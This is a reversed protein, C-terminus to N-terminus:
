TKFNKKQKNFLFNLSLILEKKYKIEYIDWIQYYYKIENIINREDEGKKFTSYNM